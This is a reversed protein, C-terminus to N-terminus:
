AIGMPESLLTFESVSSSAHALRQSSSARVSLLRDMEFSRTTM